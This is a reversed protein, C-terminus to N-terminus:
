KFLNYQKKKKTPNLDRYVFQVTEKKTTTTPNLDRDVM